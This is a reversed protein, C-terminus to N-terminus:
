CTEMWNKMIEAHLFFFIKFLRYCSAGTPGALRTSIFLGTFCSVPQLLLTLGLLPQNLDVQTMLEREDRIRDASKKRLWEGAAAMKGRHRRNPSRAQKDLPSCRDDSGGLSWIWWPMLDLLADSGALCWVGLRWTMWTFKSVACASFTSQQNGMGAYDELKNNYM